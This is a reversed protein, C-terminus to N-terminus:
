PWVLPLGSTPGTRQLRAAHKVIRRKGSEKTVPASGADYRLADYDRERIPGSAEAFIISAITQGLGPLCLLLDIDRHGRTNGHLDANQPFDLLLKTREARSM